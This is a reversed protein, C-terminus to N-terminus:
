RNVSKPGQALICTQTNSINCAHFQMHSAFAFGGLRWFLSARGRLLESKPQRQYTTVPMHKPLAMMIM